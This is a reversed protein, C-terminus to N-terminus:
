ISSYGTTPDIGKLQEEEEKHMNAWQQRSFPRSWVKPGQALADLMHINDTAGFNNYEEILDKQSAHFYIGGAAFNNALGRIRAEKVKNDAPLPIVHFYTNRLKMEAKWWPEFLGSFLVKEVVVCRPQWRSVLKFIYDTLEPAKWPEKKAELTFIRNHSDGGTVIVGALGTMAPDVLICRDLDLIDYIIRNQGTFICLRNYSLWEYFRKWTPKFDTATSIPNNAYQSAWKKPNKKIIKFGETSFSEPFIPQLVGKEDAEEAGRIYKTIAPGYTNYAHYYLDQLDYRTGTLDFKDKNFEVFYSQIGDFWEIAGAMELKSEITTEGILDDLKLYNHHRGQSKGGVGTTDFTAENWIESRPLELESKNIRQVKMSPICEPFLAMLIPNSMFQQTISVLFRSAMLSTEHAILVRINTGLSEPWPCIGSDDPLAIQISHAITIITSKYHGRPLLVSKFREDWNRLQWACVDGHLNISLKNYGLIECLFFLDLKCAKRLWKIKDTPLTELKREGIGRNKSVNNELALQYLTKDLDVEVKPNLDIPVIEPNLKM